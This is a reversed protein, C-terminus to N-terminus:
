ARFSDHVSENQHQQTNWDVNIHLQFALSMGGPRLCRHSLENWMPYNRTWNSLPIPDEYGTGSENNKM